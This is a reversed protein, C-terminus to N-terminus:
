AMITHVSSALDRRGERQGGPWSGARLANWSPSLGEQAPPLLSDRTQRSKFFLPYPLNEYSSTKDIISEKTIRLAWEIDEEMLKEMKDWLSAMHLQSFFPLKM